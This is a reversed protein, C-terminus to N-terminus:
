KKGTSLFKIECGIKLNKYLRLFNSLNKTLTEVLDPASASEFTEPEAVSNSLSSFM